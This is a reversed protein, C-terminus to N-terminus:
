IQCIYSSFYIDVFFHVSSRCIESAHRQLRWNFGTFFFFHHVSSSSCFLAWWFIYVMEMTTKKCNLFLEIFLLLHVSSSTLSSALFPLSIMIFASFCLCLSFSTLLRHGLSHSLSLFFATASLILFLSFSNLFLFTLLSLFLSFSTKILVKPKWNRKWKKKWVEFHQSISM